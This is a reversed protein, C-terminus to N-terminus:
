MELGWYPVSLVSIMTPLLLSRLLPDLECGNGTRGVALSVIAAKELQCAIAEAAVTVVFLVFVFIFGGRM